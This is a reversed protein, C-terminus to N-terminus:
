INSSLVIKNTLLCLSFLISAPSWFIIFEWLYNLESTNNVLGHYPFHILGKFQIQFVVHVFQTKLLIDIDTGVQGTNTNNNYFDAGCSWSPIVVNNLLQMRLGVPAQVVSFLFIFVWPKVTKQGSLGMWRELTLAMGFLFKPLCFADQLDPYEVGRCSLSWHFPRSLEKVSFFLYTWNVWHTLWNSTGLNVLFSSYIQNM